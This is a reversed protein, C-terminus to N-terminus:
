LLKGRVKNRESNNCVYQLYLDNNYRIKANGCLSSNTIVSPSGSNRGYKWRQKRTVNDNRYLTSEAYKALKKEARLLLVLVVTNLVCLIGLAVYLAITM